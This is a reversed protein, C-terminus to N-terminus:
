FHQKSNKKFIIFSTSNRISKDLSKWDIATSQLYSNRLLTHKVIFQLIANIKIKRCMIRVIAMNNSAYKSPQNKNLKSLSTAEVITMSTTIKKMSSGRIARTILLAADYQLLEM